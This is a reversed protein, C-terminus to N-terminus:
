HTIHKGSQALSSLTGLVFFAMFSALIAVVALRDMSFVIFGIVLMICTGVLLGSAYSLMLRIISNASKYISIVWNHCLKVSLMVIIAYAVSILLTNEQYASPVIQCSLLFITSLVVFEILHEIIKNYKRTISM